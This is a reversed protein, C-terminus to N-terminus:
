GNAGGLAAVITRTNHEMMTLYTAGDSGAPGLTDGYLANEGGVVRVHAEKGITEATKPPISSESFVAKVGTARIRAVIDTVAKASLEATSDFTPIISGVLDLHYRDVYYGFADHNTVLKRNTLGSLKGAIDTDLAGLKASYTRLNAAYTTAHGPDAAALAREINTAMIKANRPDFWIHPDRDSAAVGQEAEAEGGKRLRVGQSTDVVTGKFGSSKITDDLWKELGVGNKVLIDAKAINTLDAPSPEFDHPDLNPRLIGRVDADRGAIARTFDTVQTTTAVVQLREGDGGGQSSSTSSCGAAATLIAALGAIWVFSRGRMAPEERRLRNLVIKV